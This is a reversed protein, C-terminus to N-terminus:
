GITSDFITKLRGAYNFLIIISKRQQKILMMFLM